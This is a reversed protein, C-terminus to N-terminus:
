QLDLWKTMRKDKREKSSKNTLPLLKEKLKGIQNTIKQQEESGEEFDDM